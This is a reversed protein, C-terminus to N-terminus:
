AAEGSRERDRNQGWNHVALHLQKGAALLEVAQRPTLIEMVLERATRLRLEDAEELLRGMKREYEEMAGSIRGGGVGGGGNEVGHPGSEMALELLPKDAVDEQLTAVRSSLEEEARLTRRHLEDVRNLQYSSLQIMGGSGAVAQHTGGGSALFQELHADLESGSQAYVLRISM